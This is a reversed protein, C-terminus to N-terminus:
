DPVSPSCLSEKKLVSFIAEITTGENPISEISFVGNNELCRSRMNDLGNGHTVEKIDFGKGNDKIILKLNNEEM